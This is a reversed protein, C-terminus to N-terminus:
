DLYNWRKEEFIYSRRGFPPVVTWTLWHAGGPMLRYEFQNSVFTLKASPVAPLFAPVLEELSAPYRGHRTAYAHVVAVINEARRNGLERNFAVWALVTSVAILYIAIKKARYILLPKRNWALALLPLRVVVIWVGLLLALGGQGMAVGDFGVLLLSGIITGSLSLANGSKEPPAGKPDM